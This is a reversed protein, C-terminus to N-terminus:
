SSREVVEDHLDLLESQEKVLFLIQFNVVDDPQKAALRLQWRLGDLDAASEEVKRVEIVLVMHRARVAPLTASSLAPAATLVVLCTWTVAKSM